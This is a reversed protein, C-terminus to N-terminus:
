CRRQVKNKEHSLFKLYLPNTRSSIHSMITCSISFCPRLSRSTTSLACLAYEGQYAPNQLPSCPAYYRALSSRKQKVSRLASSATDILSVLKNRIPLLPALSDNEHAFTNCCDEHEGKEIRCGLLNTRISNRSLDLNL